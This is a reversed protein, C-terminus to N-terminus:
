LIIINSITNDAKCVIEELTLRSIVPELAEVAYPLVMLEFKGM